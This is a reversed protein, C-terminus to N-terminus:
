KKAKSTNKLRGRKEPKQKGTTTPPAKRQGALANWFGKLEDPIHNEQLTAELKGPRVEVSHTNNLIKRIERILEKGPWIRAVTDWKKGDLSDFWGDVERELADDKRRTGDPLHRNVAKATKRCMQRAEQRLAEGATVIAQTVQDVSLKGESADALLEPCVLYSELEHRELLRVEMGTKKMSQLFDNVLFDPLGDRDHVFGVEISRGTFSEVTEALEKFHPFNGEGYASKVFAGGSYSFLKAGTLRDLLKFLATNEDELVVMRRSAIIRSLSSNEVIGAAALAGVLNANAALPRIEPKSSDVIIVEQPPATDIMDISHTSLFVQANLDQAVQRFLTGLRSQLQSHLHADPEDILLFRPNTLYLYTLIQIVQQLGSGSSVIDLSTGDQEYEVTVYEQLTPDFHIRTVEVGFLEKLVGNVKAVLPDGRDKLQHLSSRFIEAYRGQSALSNRRAFTAYPENVLVGVLGPIFAVTQNLYTNFETETTLDPLNESSVHVQGFQQRLVVTFCTDDNFTVAIKCPSGARKGFWLERHDPTPVLDQVSSLFRKHYEPKPPDGEIAVHGSM